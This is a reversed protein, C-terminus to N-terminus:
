LLAKLQAATMPAHNSDVPILSEAKTPANRFVQDEFLPRLKLGSFFELNNIFHDVTILTHKYTAFYGRLFAKLGGMNQMQFDIHGFLDSGVAYARDDTNRAYPSRNALNAIRGTTPLRPYGRDRWNAIGEDIWGSNGNSPMVGKAFYSHLMEHDVAGFSSMTAGPHEMGGSGAAYATFQDHGWAGYDQELEAFVERTYAAYKEVDTSGYITFPIQRGDISTVSFQRTSFAGEPYTHFYPGSAMYWAPYEIRFSAPGTRTLQGNHRIVQTLKARRAGKFELDLTMAYQDYELNSPVYQELFKRTTLDRIWFASRVANAEWSVNLDLVSSMTLTHEGEPVDVWVVRVKSANDPLDVLRHAVDVGDLKLKSPKNVLDFIPKGAKPVTFRIESDVTATQNPIDYTVRYRATSFDVFVARGQSVNFDPPALHMNASVPLAFLSLLLLKKM